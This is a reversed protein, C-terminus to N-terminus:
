PPRHVREVLRNDAPPGMFVLGDTRNAMDDSGSFATEGGFSGLSEGFIVLKPRQNRPLTTGTATSRTSSRM